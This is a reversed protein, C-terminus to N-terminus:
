FQIRRANYIDEKYFQLLKLGKSESYERLRSAIYENGESKFISIRTWNPDNYRIVWNYFTNCKFLNSFVSWSSPFYTVLDEDVRTNELLYCYEDRSKFETISFEITSPPCNGMRNLNSIFLWMEDIGSFSANRIVILKDQEDDLFVM